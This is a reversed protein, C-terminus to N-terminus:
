HQNVRMTCTRDVKISAPIGPFKFISNFTGTAQVAVMVVWHSGSTCTGLGSGSGAGNCVEPTVAGGSDCGCSFTSNVTLLSVNQGNNQFDNDAATQIGVKDASQGLSQAGYAAGTRAANGVLVAIQAYRGLEIVGILLLVLFPTLVALEALSQGSESRLIGALRLNSEPTKGASRYLMARLWNM